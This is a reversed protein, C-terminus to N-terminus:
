AVTSTPSQSALWDEFHTAGLTAHGSPILTREGVPTGFYGAAVDGVVERPDNSAHLHLQILEPLPLARPGAIDVTGNLPASMVVDGVAAAVDDSAIPQILAPALRITNGSTSGDAIARVFEFFQTARVISYPISSEKILTEQAMKARFYGSELLRETGVVSLAVLHGVGAARAHSILNHTSTNFFSMVAADEFSPSNCVDVLVSAGALVERLGEGTLTNVGTRPSAPVAQHGHATLIRVLRSGVLGSGGIVVIKM